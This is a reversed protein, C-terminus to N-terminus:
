RQHHGGGPPHRQLPRVPGHHVGGGPVLVAAEGLVRGAADPHCSAAREQQAAEPMGPLNGWVGRRLLSLLEVAM